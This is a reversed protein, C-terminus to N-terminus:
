LLFPLHLTRKLGVLLFCFVGVLEFQNQLTTGYTGIDFREYGHSQLSFLDVFCMIVTIWVCTALVVNFSFRQFSTRSSGPNKEITVITM